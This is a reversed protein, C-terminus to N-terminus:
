DYCPDRRVVGPRESAWLLARLSRLESHRSGIRLPQLLSPVVHMVTIHESAILQRVRGSDMADRAPPIVVRAGHSLPWLLEWGDLASGTNQLVSDGQGIPSIEQMSDLWATVEGHTRNVIRLDGTESMVSIAYAPSVERAPAEQPWSYPLDAADEGCVMIRVDTAGFLASFNEQTIVTRPRCASLIAAIRGASHAPDLSLYAAGAKLVALIARVMALSPEMCLACLEGPGLGNQQLRVALGDAQADLEGYTLEAGGFKVAGAGPNLQAVVEFRRHVPHSFFIETGPATRAARGPSYEPLLGSTKGLHFDIAALATWDIGTSPVRYLLEDDNLWFVHHDAVWEAAEPKASM